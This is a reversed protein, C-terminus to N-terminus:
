HSSRKDLWSQLIIQASLADVIGRRKGSKTGSMNMYTYAQVTSLREDVMEYPLGTKESLLMAFKKCKEGRHACSSDMNLPLGVVIYEGGLEKIRLASKEVADEIGNAKIIGQATALMMLADCSAFGTRVDGYDVGIVRLIKM